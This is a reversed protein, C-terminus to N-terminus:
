RGKTLALDYSKLLALAGFTVLAWAFEALLWVGAVIAATGALEFIEVTVFLRAIVALTKLM